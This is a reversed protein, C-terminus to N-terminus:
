CVDVFDIAASLVATAISVVFLCCRINTMDLKLNMLDAVYFLCEQKAARTSQEGECKDDGSRKRKPNRQALLAVPAIPISLGAKHSAALPWTPHWLPLPLLSSTHINM